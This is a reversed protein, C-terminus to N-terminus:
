RRQAQLLWFTADLDGEGGGALVASPVKTTETTLSTIDWGGDDLTSRLTGESVAAAQWNGHRLNADSFAGLLLTAGTRTARHAAAAYSRKGDDSLCHFMGSDVVTDFVDDYGDLRTADAVAFTVDAGADAARREATILATPSIDLATVRYGQKALYIANDGLGCGIDLVHGHVLGAQEWAVVNEKPAKTDWPVSTIPPVGEAPSEGRYLADFDFESGTPGTM